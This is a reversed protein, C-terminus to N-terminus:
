FTTRWGLTYRLYKLKESGDSRDADVYEVQPIITSGQTIWFNLALSLTKYNDTLMNDESPYFLDVDSYKALVRWTPNFTYMLRLYWGEDDGDGTTGDALPWDQRLRALYEGSLNVNKYTADAGIAYQWSDNDGDDDWRGWGVSGLLRFKGGWLYAEPALHLLLNQYGNNDTFRSDDSRSRNEGNLYYFYAPLSFNEFDFNRYVEIGTSRWDQLTLLGNNGHYQEHWWTRAAYEESFFPYIAGVKFEVDYPYPTRVTFYAEDLDIDVSASSSRDIDAGLAPTASALVEIKPAVDFSLWDTLTKGFYLYLDNIGASLNNHQDVDNREGDTYDALFFKFHGGLTVGESLADTVAERASPAEKIKQVDEAQTKQNEKLAKLEEKLAQTTQELAEIKLQLDSMQDAPAVGPFVVSLMLAFAIAVGSKM